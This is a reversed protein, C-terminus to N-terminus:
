PLRVLAEIITVEDWPPVNPPVELVVKDSKVTPPLKVVVKVAGAIIVVAVPGEDISVSIVAKIIPVVTFPDANMVMVGFVYIFDVSQGERWKGAIFCGPTRFKVFDYFPAYGDGGDSPFM